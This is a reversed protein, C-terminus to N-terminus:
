MAGSCSPIERHLAATVNISDPHRIYTSVLSIANSRAPLSADSCSHLRNQVAASEAPARAGCAARASAFKYIASEMFILRLIAILRHLAVGEKM